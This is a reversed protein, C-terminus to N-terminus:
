TSLRAFYGFVRELGELKAHPIAAGGGFGTSGIKERDSLAAAIAKATLGTKRAAATALQQFLAKKNAVALNAEVRDVDLIESLESMAGGLSADRAETRVLNPFSAAPAGGARRREARAEDISPSNPSRSRRAPRCLTTTRGRATTAACSSRSRTPRRTSRPAPMPPATPRRSSWARPRMPSSKAPSAM